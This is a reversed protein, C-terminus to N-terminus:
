QDGLGSPLQFRVVATTFHGRFSYMSISLQSVPGLFLAVNLYLFVLTHHNFKLIRFM